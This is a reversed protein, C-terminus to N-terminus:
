GRIVGDVRLALERVVTTMVDDVEQSTLTRDPAMLTVGVTVSKKGSPIGEGRYLEVVRCDTILDKAGRVVSSIKEFETKEDVLVAIDRTVVPFAPLAQYHHAHKMAPFLAELDMEVLFVPRHIGFSNQFDDAIQGLTGVSVGDFTITVTRGDHWHDNKSARDFTLTIGSKAAFYEVVGRLRMFTKEADTVGYEGFVVTMREEPVGGERPIYVRALEFVNATNTFAQNREIARLMSPVLTPRMHTIDTSLPNYLALADKPSVGYMELDAVSVMSNSFFESFGAGALFKKAWMAWDLSADDFGAPPRSAPLVAPMNHYGYMRAVEETFDVEGEIDDERWYPVTARYQKGSKELASGLSELIKAVTKDPIEIGIRQRIREFDIVFAKPEYPSVREDIVESAIEGGCIEQTLAIARALAIEPMQVSLGKEFLTQADSSINLARATRRLAVAEFSSAVFVLTNTEKTIGTHEGGMIGAIDLPKKADAIVLHGDLDYTAGNLALINEGKKGLRVHLEAGEIARYDFAHLPQAYELMVYNTIDVVANIPRMGSLVLRKQMWWPSEGVRVNKMVVAMQRRCRTTDEITVSLPIDNKGVPLVTPEWTFDAEIATAAERALGVIGKADPRNTTVEIDFVVDHLDLADAIPTGARADTISSLDWIMREGAQLGDFGIEAPGCLMGASEVGRIISLTIEHTEGSGGRVMAGPLAVAVRMGEVLNTGGCVITTEKEGIDVVAVRLRDANPHQTATKVDGVVINRCREGIDEITEVSMSRLSFEKAFEEASLKTHVHEKLWNYSALINM